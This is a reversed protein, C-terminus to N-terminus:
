LTLYCLSPPIFKGIFGLETVRNVLFHEVNGLELPIPSAPIHGTIQQRKAHNSYVAIAKSDFKNKPDQKCNCVTGTNTPM